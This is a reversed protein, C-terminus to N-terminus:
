EIHIFSKIKENMQLKKRLVVEVQDLYGKELELQERTYSLRPYFQFVFDNISEKRKRIVVCDYRSLNEKSTKSFVEFFSDLFYRCTIQTHSRIEEKSPKPNNFLYGVELYVVNESAM